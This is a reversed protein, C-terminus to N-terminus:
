PLLFNGITCNSMHTGTGDVDNEIIVGKQTLFLTPIPIDNQNVIYLQELCNRATSTKASKDDRGVKNRISTGSLRSLVHAVNRM